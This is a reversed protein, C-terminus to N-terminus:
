CARLLNRLISRAQAETDHSHHEDFAFDRLIKREEETIDQIGYSDPSIMVAVMQGGRTLVFKDVSGRELQTLLSGMERVAERVTRLEKNTVNLVPM